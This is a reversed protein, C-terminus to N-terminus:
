CSFCFCLGCMFKPSFLKLLCDSMKSVPYATFFTLLMQVNIYSELSKRISRAIRTVWSSVSVLFFIYFPHNFFPCSTTVTWFTKDTFLVTNHNLFLPLSNLFFLITVFTHWHLSDAGQHLQLYPQQHEQWWRGWWVPFFLVFLMLSKETCTITAAYVPNRFLLLVHM